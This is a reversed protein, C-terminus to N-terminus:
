IKLKINLKGLVATAFICFAATLMCKVIGLPEPIAYSWDWGVFTTVIPYLMYPILYCTLTATGAPRLPSFIRETKDTLVFQLVLYAAIDIALVFFIWPATAIIKSIIFVRHTAIAMVLCSAAAVLCGIVRRRSLSKNSDIAFLSFLVGSMILLHHSGNGIQLISCVLSLVEIVPSGFLAEGDTAFWHATSTCGINVILLLCWVIVLTRRRTALVYVLACFLYSWGIIGLIGWWSPSFVGGEPNRSTMLLYLLLAWGLTKCCVPLWGKHRYHNFCLFFGVTMLFSYGATNYGVAPDIGSEYNCIFAGMVLLAFSRQLIHRIIDGESKGNATQRHVSYPISLGVVFLFTPFIIDSFGLMDETAAAHQMWHPIGNVSWFENVTLMLFMTVARLLDIVNNRSSLHPANIEYKM